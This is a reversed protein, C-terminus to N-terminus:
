KLLTVSLALEDVVKAFTNSCFTFSTLSFRRCRLYKRKNMKTKEKFENYSLYAKFLIFNVFLIWLSGGFTGTFQYWQIWNIYASFANGLNLWPWSFEWGLHIKEFVM